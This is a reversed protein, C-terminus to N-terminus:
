YNKENSVQNVKCSRVQNNVIDETAKTSTSGQPIAHAALYTSIIDPQQNKTDLSAQHIVKLMKMETDLKLGYGIIETM